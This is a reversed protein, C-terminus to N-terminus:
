CMLLSVAHVSNQRNAEPKTGLVIFVSVYTQFSLALPMNVLPLQIPRYLLQHMQLSKQADNQEENLGAEQCWMACATVFQSAM